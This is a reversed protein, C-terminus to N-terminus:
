DKKRKKTYQVKCVLSVQAFSSFGHLPFLGDARRRLHQLGEGLLRLMQPFQLLLDGQLQVGGLLGHVLHVLLVPLGLLVDGVAPPLAVGLLHELGLHEHPLDVVPPGRRHHVPVPQFLGPGGGIEGADVKLGVVAALGAAVVDAQVGEPELPLEKDDVPPGGHGAHEVVELQAGGVVVGGLDAPLPPEGQLPLELYLVAPHLVGEVGGLVDLVVDELLLHGM